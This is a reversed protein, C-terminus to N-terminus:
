KTLGPKILVFETISPMECCFLCEQKCVCLFLSYGNWTCMEKLCIRDSGHCRRGVLSVYIYLNRTLAVTASIVACCSRAPILCM